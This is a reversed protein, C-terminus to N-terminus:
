VEGISASGSYRSEKERTVTVIPHLTDSFLAPVVEHDEALPM